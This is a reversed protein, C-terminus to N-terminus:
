KDRDLDGKPMPARVLLVVYSKVQQNNTPIASLRLVNIVWILYIELIIELPGFSKVFSFSKSKLERTIVNEQKWIDLIM